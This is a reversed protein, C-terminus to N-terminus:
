TKQDTDQEGEKKDTGTDDFFRKIVEELNEPLADRINTGIAVLAPKSKAEAIWTPENENALWLFGMLTIIVLLAGRAAGFIFGLTRDLVGIRSDIILDALLMTLYSVIVLVVLFIAAAAMADAVLPNSAVNPITSTIIPSLLKYFTAAAVAAAVWSVISLVERSFGRIMALIASILMIVVLIGDLLTISM